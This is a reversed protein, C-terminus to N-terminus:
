LNLGQTVDLKPQHFHLIECLLVGTRIEEFINQLTLLESWVNLTNIWRILLVKEFQSVKQKQPAGGLGGQAMSTSPPAPNLAQRFM